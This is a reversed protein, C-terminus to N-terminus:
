GKVAGGTLGKIIFKQFALALAVPPISALVGGTSMMVYDAGFKTSFESVLVPLTKAKISTLVLALFFENWAIIFAFVGTAALGPAALPLVVRVLAGMRSCGDIRAADEIDIPIAQFYGMMIWIMLPLTFSSYAIFLGLHTDLLHFNMMVIYLPIIIAVAPIMQTTLILLLLPQRGQFKLRTFSYSAMSGIVLCLMTVSGAIVISNILANKFYRAARTTRAGGFFIAKYSELTPNHPIWHPPISLLESKTSFSSIILWAFPAITFIFIIIVLIYILIKYARLPKLFNLTKV